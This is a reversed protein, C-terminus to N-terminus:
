RVADFADAIELFAAGFQDATSIKSSEYLAFLEDQIASFVPVWDERKQGIGAVASDNAVTAKKLIDSPEKLAGAVIASQIGRFSTSLVAAGAKRGPPGREMVAKYVKTSLGLKENPFAPSPTPTPPSPPKPSPSGIVVKAKLLVTKTGASVIKDNEKKVILYTTACHVLLERPETGAGFVVGEVTDPDTDRYVKFKQEKRADIDYVSWDSSFAVSDKIAPNPKVSLDVLDGLPVPTDCGLIQSPLPSPPTPQQSSDAAFAAGMLLLFAICYRM